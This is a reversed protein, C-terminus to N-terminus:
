RVKMRRRMAGVLFGGLLMLGVSGPEPIALLFNDITFDTAVGVGFGLVGALGTTFSSDTASLTVLPTSSGGIEYIMGTLNSGTCDFVFKYDKSSDLLFTTSALNQGGQNANIMKRILVQGDSARYSFHYGDVGAFTNIDSARAYIGFVMQGSGWDLVDMSIQYDDGPPTLFSGIYSIGFPGVTANLHYNQASADYTRIGGLGIDSHTWTPNSTDDGDNFDDFINGKVLGPVALLLLSLASCWRLLPRTLLTSTQIPTQSVVHTKM